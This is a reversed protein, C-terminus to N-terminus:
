ADVEGFRLRYGRPSPIESKIYKKKGTAKKMRLHTDELGARGVVYIQAFGPSEEVLPEVSPIGHSLGGSIRFISVGKQGRVSKDVNAGLSTFSVANNYVRTLAQFNRAREHTGAFLEKLVDPCEPAEPDMQPLTVKDKQCCMTFAKTEENMELKTAEKNFHRAGCAGCLTDCKGLRHPILLNPNKLIADENNQGETHVAKCRIM